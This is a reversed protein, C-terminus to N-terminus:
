SMETAANLDMLHKDAAQPDVSRNSLSLRTELEAVRAAFKQSEQVYALAGEYHQVFRGMGPFSFLLPPRSM